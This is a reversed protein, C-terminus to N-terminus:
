VSIVHGTDSHVRVTHFNIGLNVRVTEFTRHHFRSKKMEAGYIGCSQKQGKKAM